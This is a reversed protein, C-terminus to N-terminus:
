EFNKELNEIILKASYEPCNMKFMKRLDDFDIVKKDTSNIFEKIRESASDLSENYKIVLSLPYKELYEICVDDEQLCFHIIPKGYSMYTILKSPLSHSVLNGINILYDANLIEEDLEKQGVYGCVVYSSNQFSLIEEECGQSFFKLEYPIDNKLKEM